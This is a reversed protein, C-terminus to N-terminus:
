HYVQLIPCSKSELANLLVEALSSFVEQYQKKQRGENL